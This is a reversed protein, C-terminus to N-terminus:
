GVPTWTLGTTGGGGAKVNLTCVDETLTCGAPCADKSAICPDEIHQEREKADASDAAAPTASGCAQVFPVLLLIALLAWAYKMMSGRVTTPSGLVGFPSVVGVWPIFARCRDCRRAAMKRLRTAIGRVLGCLLRRVDCLTVAAGSAHSLARALQGNGSGVDLVSHRQDVWRALRKALTADRFWM